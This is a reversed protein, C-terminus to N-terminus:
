KKAYGLRDHGSRVPAMAPAQVETNGPLTSNFMRTGAVKKPMKNCIQHQAKFAGRIGEESMNETKVGISNLVKEHLKKGFLGKISNKVEEKKKEDDEGKEDPFSANEIIEGAEGAEEMMGAAAHEITETSLLEDLKQKYVSLEGSLEDIKAQLEAQESKTQELESMTAELTKESVSQDETIATAAEEDVNVFRGNMLKVKVVKDAMANDEENHNIKKNLIRVDTGARGHGAPIIAIHNYRLCKQEADFPTDNLMGPTFDLDANYAASIEPLQGSEIEAITKPDTVFFECLIYGDEYIPTGSVSGVSFQKVVEPDLWEHDGAVLPIGELSKLAEPCIMEPERIAVNVIDNTFENPASGVEQIGYKMVREALIRAKCRLFGDPTKNWKPKDTSFNTFKM